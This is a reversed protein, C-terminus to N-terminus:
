RKCLERVIKDREEVTLKRLEGVILQASVDGEECAFWECSDLDVDRVNCDDLVIHLTGGALYPPEEAYYYQQIMELLRTELDVARQAM